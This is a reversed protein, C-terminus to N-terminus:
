QALCHRQARKTRSCTPRGTQRPWAALRRRPLKWRVCGRRRRAPRTPHSQIRRHRHKSRTSVFLFASSMPKIRPIARVATTAPVAVATDFRTDRRCAFRHDAWSCGCCSAAAGGGGGGGGGGAAWGAAALWLLMSSSSCFSPSSFDAPTRVSASNWAWFARMRAPPQLGPRGGTLGSTRGRPRAGREAVPGRRHPEPPHVGAPLQRDARRQARGKRVRAMTPSRRRTHRSAAAISDRLSTWRLPDSPAM